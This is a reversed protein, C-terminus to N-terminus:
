HVLDHKQDGILKGWKKILAALHQDRELGLLYKEIEADTLKM